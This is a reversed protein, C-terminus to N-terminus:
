RVIPILIAMEKYSALIYPLPYWFHFQRCVQSSPYRVVLWLLGTAAIHAAILALQWYVLELLTIGAFYALIVKDAPWWRVPNLTRTAPSGGANKLLTGMRLKQVM